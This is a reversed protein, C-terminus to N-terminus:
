WPGAQGGQGAADRERRVRALLQSAGAHGPRLELTRELSRIAERRLPDGDARPTEALLAVAREYHPAWADSDLEIAADFAALALESEGEARYQTGLATWAGATPFLEISRRLHEIAGSRDGEAALRGGIAFQISVTERGIWRNVRAASLLEGSDKAGAVLAMAYWNMLQAVLCAGAVGWVLRRVWPSGTRPQISTPLFAQDPARLLIRAVRGDRLKWIAGDLIFHHINVTAFIAAALGVDFPLGGLLDPALVFAPAILLATGALLSKWLFRHVSSGRRSSREYYATVWLYQVAHATSIWVSGFILDWGGADAAVLLPLVFWLAQSTVLLLAPTLTRLRARSALRWAAAGLSGLYGLLLLPVLVRSVEAPLPLALMRPTNAVPLVDPTLIRGQQGDHIAMIALTASLVFSAYVLRKTTADVEIGRKRLFVLALGYNQGSFHWPSWSFYVTILLSSLWVDHAAIGLLLALAITVYVAFFAYKRRDERTEYVRLITAGYHPTSTLIGLLIVLYGPWDTVGTADSVLLLVPIFLIYAM